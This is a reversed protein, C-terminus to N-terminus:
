SRARTLGNQRAGARGPPAPGCGARDARRSLGPHGLMGRPGHAGRSDGRATVVVTDFLGSRGLQRTALKQLGIGLSLMAVLSAVGVGIGLTTLSNRLGAERLNRGALEILDYARM